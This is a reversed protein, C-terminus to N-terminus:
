RERRPKQPPYGFEADSPSYMPAAPARHPQLPPTNVVLTGSILDAGTRRSVMSFLLGGELLLVATAIQVGFDISTFPATSVSTAFVISPRAMSRVIAQWPRLDGGAASVVTIDFTRRGPSQGAWFYLFGSHYAFYALPVLTEFDLRHGLADALAYTLLAALGVLLFDVFAASLRKRPTATFTSSDAM